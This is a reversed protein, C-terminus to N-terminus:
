RSCCAHIASGIRGWRAATLFHPFPSDKEPDVSFYIFLPKGRIVQRPIFGMFRSDLSEDRNDGMVWYSNPPVVVPGWNDRTPHYGPKDVSSVLAPLHNHYGYREPIVEPPVGVRGDFGIEADPTGSRQVYPEDLKRGNRYVAGDRGQLTDGPIGIVRKVVDEEPHNYTPRFVVIEGHRPDRFGPVRWGTFPIHAGFVANNAMLYDGVLLTQEMSNSPISYAQILFTRIVLFLVIAAGISKAWELAENKKKADPKDKATAKSRAAARTQSTSM